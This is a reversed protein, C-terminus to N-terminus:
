NTLRKLSLYYIPCTIKKDYARQKYTIYLNLTFINIAKNQLSIHM